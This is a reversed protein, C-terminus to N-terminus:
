IYINILDCLFVPNSHSGCLNLCIETDRQNRQPERHDKKDEKAKMNAPQYFDRNVPIRHVM